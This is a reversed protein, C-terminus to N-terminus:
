SQNIICRKVGYRCYKPWKVASAVFDHQCADHNFNCTLIIMKCTSMIENCTFMLINRTSMFLREHVDNHQM